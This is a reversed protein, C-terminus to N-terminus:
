FRHSGGFDRYSLQEEEGPTMGTVPCMGEGGFDPRSAMWADYSGDDDEPEPNFHPHDAGVGDPYYDDPTIIDERSYVNISM